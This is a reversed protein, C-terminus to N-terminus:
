LKFNTGSLLNVGIFQLPRAESGTIPMVKTGNQVVMWGAADGSHKDFVLLRKTPLLLEFMEDLLDVMRMLNTDGLTSLGILLSVDVLSDDVGLSLASMGVLDTPPFTSEDGHADFNIVEMGPHNAAFDSCFRLLSTHINSIIM